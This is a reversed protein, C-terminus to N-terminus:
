VLHVVFIHEFIQGPLFQVSNHLQHFLGPFQLFHYICYIEQIEYGAIRMRIFGERNFISKEVQKNLQELEKENLRIKIEKTRTKM